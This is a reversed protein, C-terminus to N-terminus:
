STLSIETVNMLGINSHQHDEPCRPPHEPVVRHGAPNLYTTSAAADTANIKDSQQAAPM